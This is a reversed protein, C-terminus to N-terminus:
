REKRRAATDSALREHTLARRARGHAARSSGLLDLGLMAAGLVPPAALARVRARPCVAAIGREIRAHFVPDRARMVGGGLVVDPDLRALRLRRVATRVM